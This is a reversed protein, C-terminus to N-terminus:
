PSRRCTPPRRSPPRGCTAPISQHALDVLALDALDDLADPPAHRGRAVLARAGAQTGLGRQRGDVRRLEAVPDVGRDVVGDRRGRLCELREPGLAQGAPLLDDVGDPSRHEVVGLVQGPHGVLLRVEPADLVLDDLVAEHGRTRGARLVELDLCDAAVGAHHDGLEGREAHHGRDRRDRVRGRRDDVVRDADDRGPVRDDEIRMRVRPAARRLRDAQDVARDDAGAPRRVQHRRHGRGVISVARARILWGPTRTRRTVPPGATTRSASRVSLRAIVAPGPLGGATTSAVASTSRAARSM